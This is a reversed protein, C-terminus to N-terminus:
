CFRLYQTKSIFSFRLYNVYSASVLIEGSFLGAALKKKIKTNLNDECRRKPRPVSRKREHSRVLIIIISLLIHFKVANRQDIFNIKKKLKKRAIIKVTLTM